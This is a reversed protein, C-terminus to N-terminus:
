DALRGKRLGEGWCDLEEGHFPLLDGLNSCRLEPDIERVRAIAEDIEPPRQM